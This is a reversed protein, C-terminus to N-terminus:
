SITPIIDNHFLLILIYNINGIKFVYMISEFLIYTLTLIVRKM